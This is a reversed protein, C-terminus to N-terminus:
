TYVNSTLPDQYGERRLLRSVLCDTVLNTDRLLLSKRKARTFVRSERKALTPIRSERKALTSVRSHHKTLTM